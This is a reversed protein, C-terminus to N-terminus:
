RARRRWWLVGALIGLLAVGLGIAQGRPLAAFRDAFERTALVWVVMGPVFGLASGALFPGFRIGSIGLAWHAPPFLFLVLRALFATRFGEERARATRRQVREPLRAVIAEPGIWRALGFAFVGAGVAGALCLAIAAAPPWVLAAPIMFAAGPMGFPQLAVFALWWVLPGTAGTETLLARMRAPELLPALAGSWWLACLTAAFGVLLAARLRWDRWPPGPQAGSREAQV